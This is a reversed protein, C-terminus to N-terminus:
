PRVVYGAARLLGLTEALPLGVVGSVSGNVWPILAGARGQLAYAGAKGQWDGGALYDAIEPDSLRRMRVATETVAEWARDARRVGVATLVRHRRGMLLRIMRAADAEDLPKGLIRRGLAVTTDACLAVEDPALPVAALKARMVRLVYPRPAEGREPSEDAGPPRVAHPAIGAQALLDLRRPSASGLVLRLGPDPPLATM